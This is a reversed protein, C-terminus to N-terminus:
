APLTIRYSWTHVVPERNIDDLYALIRQKLEAKSAVRIRRLVSRAMKSFFGEVLNLWSGHKPTFVFSFRGDRQEALWKNTEKSVHASHNDLIIKIATDSPYAADLKKLFGIFERSRHRNEVCAHVQGTLLDIGALLSLTGHRKYEHDRAVCPHENAVPPLDPATNAIAQIGPKEDYSIFAVNPAPKEVTKNATGPDLGSGAGLSPRPCVGPDSETGAKVADSEVARLIAVEQYVCLVEAMKADFAPDRRELYYRVKHPKVEQEALIKCVTGQAIRALCVHGAAPAHDRAHRALLRTTWLEHPYGVDKAKQCALSVLWARAEVTIEPEKGPRPSDDLAAMVGFRSARALCRQVTQHTVGVAMGVGYSSPDDRYRLLIRAREVRSAPETRSRAISQLETQEAGTISLEVVKRAAAM